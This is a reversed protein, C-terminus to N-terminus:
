TLPRLVTDDPIAGIGPKMPLTAFGNEIKSDLMAFNNSTSQAAPFYEAWVLNGILASAQLMAALAVSMSNYCHPSVGVSHAEAMAAIELFELMGGAGAIDPNLVDAARRELIERFIPRGGHREGTVIRQGALRRIEALSGLDDSSVPEEFWFLNYPQFRRAAALAEFPDDLGNLDVMLAIEPGLAERVKALLAEGEELGSLSFPYLKLARFGAAAHERCRAVVADIGPSKDSWLNAYLPIRERLAGGLLVHLPAGLRKAVMDWLALEIASVAAYFDIGGRKDGFNRVAFERFTRPRSPRGQYAAGLARILAAVARTRGGLVYAEGWGEAGDEATVKVLLFPKLGTWGDPSEGGGAIFCSVAALKM